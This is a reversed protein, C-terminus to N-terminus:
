INGLYVHSLRKHAVEEFARLASLETPFSRAMKYRPFFRSLHLCTEPDLEALWEVEREFAIPDDSLGPVVLTTVEVHVGAKLARQISRKVVTLGEPAGLRRYGEETFCKLDINVADLCALCQEWTQETAYGNTVAVTLLDREHALQASEILFEPAILPENYTFAVGINGESRLADAQAVLEAPTTPRLAPHVTATATSIDANQCFDCRLNCGYSGYSLILAGPYFRALPKKEIPDLALATAQGYNLSVVAGGKLSRAGCLGLKGERLVCAHPCVPCTLAAAPGVAGPAAQPPQDAASRPANASADPTTRESM